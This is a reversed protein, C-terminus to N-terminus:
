NLSKWFNTLDEGSEWTRVKEQVKKRGNSVKWIHNSSGTWAVRVKGILCTLKTKLRRILNPPLAKTPFGMVALHVVLEVKLQILVGRKFGDRNRCYCTRLRDLIM